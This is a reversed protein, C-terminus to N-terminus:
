RQCASRPRGGLLGADPSATASPDEEGLAYAVAEELSLSAGETRVQELAAEDFAKRIGIPLNAFIGEDWEALGAGSSRQLERAAGWLRGGRLREGAAVAVM